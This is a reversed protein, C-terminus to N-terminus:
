NRKKSLGGVIGFILLSDVDGMKPKNTPIIIAENLIDMNLIEILTEEDYKGTTKIEYKEKSLTYGKPAKTEQAYLKDGADYCIDFTIIGEKDTLNVCDRGFVDKFITGDEKFITIEAGKLYHKKDKSDAKAIRIRVTHSVRVTQSESNIDEHSGILLSGDYLQEFVVLDYGFLDSADLEFEVEVSGNSETPTFTKTATIENGDILLPLGTAKDMLKGKITLERNTPINVYDIVDLIVQHERAAITQNNTYKNRANTKIGSVYITQAEDNIDKHEVSVDSGIRLEEFVVLTKAQHLRADFTFEVEVEGDKTAPTFTTTGTIINNDADRIPEGTAKDILVGYVNYEVGVNLNTYTVTDVITQSSSTGDIINDNDVKDRASTGITSAREKIPLNNLSPTHGLDPTGGNTIDNGDKDYLNRIQTIGEADPKITYIFPDPNIEYGLPAQSERVVVTGLPFAINNDIDRYPTGSVLLTEDQIQFGGFVNTRYVLVNLPTKGVMEAESTFYEDYYSVTFRANEFTAVDTIPIQEGTESDFKYIRAGLPDDMPADSVNFITTQGAQLTAPYIQANYLYGSAKRVDDDIEQAYVAMGNYTDLPEIRIADSEGNANLTLTTILENNDLRYIGYKIGELSYTRCNTSEPMHTPTKKVQAYVANQKIYDFTLFRQYEPNRGWIYGRAGDGKHAENMIHNYVQTAMHTRFNCLFNYINPFPNYGQYNGYGFTGDGNGSIFIIDSKQYVVNRTIQGTKSGGPYWSNYITIERTEVPGGTFADPNSTIFRYEHGMWADDIPDVPLNGWFKMENLGFDSSTYYPLARVWYLVPMTSGICAIMDNTAPADHATPAIGGRTWAVWRMAVEIDEKYAQVNFPGVTEVKDVLTGYENAQYHFDTPPAYINGGEVLGMKLAYLAASMITEDMGLFNVVPDMGVGHPKDADICYALFQDGFYDTLGYNRTYREYVPTSTWVFNSQQGSPDHARGAQDSHYQINGGAASASFPILSIIMIILLLISMYKKLKM